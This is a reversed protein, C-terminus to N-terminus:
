RTLPRCMMMIFNRLGYTNGNTKRLILYRMGCTKLQITVTSETVMYQGNLDKKVKLPPKAPVNPQNIPEGAPTIIVKVAPDSV